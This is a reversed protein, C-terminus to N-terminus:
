IAKVEVEEDEDAAAAAPPTACGAARIHAMIWNCSKFPIAGNLIIYFSLLVIFLLHLFLLQLIILPYVVMVVVVVPLFGRM